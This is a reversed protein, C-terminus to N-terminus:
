DGGGSKAASAIMAPCAFKVAGDSRVFGALESEASRLLIAFQDDDIMDALTWGRIDTHMWDRMSPFLAYGQRIAIQAGGIGADSLLKALVGKEGLSFPARLADAAKPGFLRDLLGVLRAYGPSNELDAWVAVVLKGDPRLVEWMETLARARDDFFMLGFQSVVADFTAQGFPLAEARGEVWDINAGKRRAVALMDPNRDLGVVTGDRGVRRRADLALVGTGCAVDFVRMGPGVNAEDCVPGTWREFLAPLFFEDYVEAASTSVQGTEARGM